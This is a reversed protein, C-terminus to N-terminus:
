CPDSSSVAFARTPIFPVCALLCMVVEVLRLPVPHWQAEGTHAEINKFHEKETEKNYDDLKKDYECPSFLKHARLKKLPRENSNQASQQQQHSLRHLRANRTPADEMPTTATGSTAAAAV